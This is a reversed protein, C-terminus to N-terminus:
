PGVDLDCAVDGSGALSTMRVAITMTQGAGLSYPITATPNGGVILDFDPSCTARKRVSGVLVGGGSNRITFTKTTVAGSDTEAAGSWALATPTVVLKGPRTRSASCSVTATVAAYVLGVCVLMLVGLVLITKRM